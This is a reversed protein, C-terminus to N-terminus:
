LYQYLAEIELSLDTRCVDGHLVVIPTDAGFAQQLPTWVRDLVAPDRLYLKIQEPRWRAPNGLGGSRTAEQLLSDINALTEALQREPNGAHLTEHGVVSATGSVLLEPVDTWPLYMARSFSPSRPGYQRPYRFASVQRPNEIQTGPRRGALFYILLGGGHTGIATAAPLEKEFGPKLALAKHRGLSFQRYREHDADGQNIQAIFNWVRLWAPFGHRQLFGDLLAYSHFVARDVNALENEPLFLQGFLVEGNEAYRIGHDVGHRVPTPSEWIEVGPGRLAQLDVCTRRPDDDAAAIGHSVCALVQPGLAAPASAAPHVRYPRPGVPPADARLLRDQGDHPEETHQQM